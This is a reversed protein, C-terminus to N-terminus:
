EPRARHNGAQTGAPDSPEATPDASGTGSEPGAAVGTGRTDSAPYEDPGALDDAGAQDAQAAQDTQPAQETQAPQDSQETASAAPAAAAAQQRLDNWERRRQRARGIGSALLWVGLVLVLATGAGIAFFGALSTTVTANFAELSATTDGGVGVATVIVVAVLILLIGIAIM